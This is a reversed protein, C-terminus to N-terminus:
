RKARTALTAFPVFFKATSKVCWGEKRSRAFYKIRGELIYSGKKAELSVTFPIELAKKFDLCKEGESDLVEVELDTATFFNKPFVLAPCPEFEVLFDPYPSVFVGERLIVKLVVEGEQGRALRRPVVSAEVKLLDEQGEICPPGELFALAILALVFALRARKKERMKM